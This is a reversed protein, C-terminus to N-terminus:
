NAGPSLMVTASNPYLSCVLELTSTLGRLNQNQNQNQNQGTWRQQIEGRPQQQLYDWVSCFAQEPDAETQGGEDVSHSDPQQQFHLQQQVGAGVDGM